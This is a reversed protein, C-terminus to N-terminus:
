CASLGMLTRQTRSGAWTFWLTTAGDMFFADSALKTARATSRADTFMQKAISALCIPLSDGLLADRLRGLVPRGPHHFRQNRSKTARHHNRYNARSLRGAIGAGDSLSLLLRFTSSSVPSQRGATPAPLTPLPLGHNRPRHALWRRTTAVAGASQNRCKAGRSRCFGSSGREFAESIIQAVPAEAVPFDEPTSPTQQNM